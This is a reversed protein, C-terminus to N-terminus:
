VNRPLQPDPTCADVSSQRSEPENAERAILRLLSRPKDIVWRISGTSSGAGTCFPCCASLRALVGPPAAEGGFNAALWALLCSGEENSTSTTGLWVRKPSLPLARCCNRTGRSRSDLQAPM